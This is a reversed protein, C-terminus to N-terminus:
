RTAGVDSKVKRQQKQQNWQAWKASLQESVYFFIGNALDNEYRSLRSFSRHCRQEFLDVVITQAFQRARKNKDEDKFVFPFSIGTDLRELRKIPSNPQIIPTM